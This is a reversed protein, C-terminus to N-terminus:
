NPSFDISLKPERGLPNALYRKACHECLDYRINRSTEKSVAVGTGQGATPEDAQDLRELIEHVELLHDTDDDPRSGEHPDHGRVEIRIVFRVDNPADIPRRCRDCTYHIM